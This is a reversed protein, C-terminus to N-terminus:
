GKRLGIEDLWDRIADKSAGIPFRRSELWNANAALKKLNEASTGLPSSHSTCFTVLTKGSFDYSELFTYIIKPAQGHWIPHGIVVTDYQSLDPMEGGIAPRAAPDSQERDARCDTYYALDAATYPIEPVIEYLDAGLIDAAYEALPKTNGTASFYAVLTKGGTSASAGNLSLVATVDGNGLLDKLETQSMGTIRGLRTYAWSNSGYFLVIQDGAYLVVDGPETTTQVDNRPLSAGLPGVQEFDGYMSLAVTLPGSRLLERLADVSANDQWEVALQRGAVTLTIEDMAPAEKRILYNYALVAVQARTANERPTFVYDATAPAIGNARAWGVANAAYDSADSAADSHPEGEMRYLMTVLMEQTVPTDPGFKGGGVGNIVGSQQAWAVPKAYWADPSTDTFSAAGSVAPEGAIRYLVMALQARNFADNPSFKGNGTGTMIGSGSLYAVAEAYWADSPVDTFAGTEAATLALSGATTTESAAPANAACAPMTLMLALSLLIGLLRKM